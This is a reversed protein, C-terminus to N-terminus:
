EDLSKVESRDDSGPEEIELSSDLDEDADSERLMGLLLGPVEVGDVGFPAYKKRDMKSCSVEELEEVVGNDLKEVPSKNPVIVRLEVPRLKDDVSERLVAVEVSFSELKKCNVFKLMAKVLEFKTLMKDLLSASLREAVAEEVLLTVVVEDLADSIRVEFRSDVDNEM